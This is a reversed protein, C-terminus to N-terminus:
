LGIVGKLGMLLVALLGLILLIVATLVAASVLPDPAGASLAYAIGFVLVPVIMGILASVRFKGQAVSRVGSLLIFVFGVVTLILAIWIAITVIDM